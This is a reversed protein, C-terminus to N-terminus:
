QIVYDPESGCQWGVLTANPPAEAPKRIALTSDIAHGVYPLADSRCM